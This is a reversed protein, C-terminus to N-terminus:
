GAFPGRNRPDEENSSRVEAQSTRMSEDGGNWVLAAAATRSPPDWALRFRRRLVPNPLQLRMEHGEVGEREVHEISYRGDGVVETNLDADVRGPGRGIAPGRPTVGLDSPLFVQLDLQATPYAVNRSVWEYPRPGLKSDTTAEIIDERFAYKYSPLFGALTIDALEGPVLPPHFAVDQVFNSGTTKRPPRLSISGSGTRIAEIISLQPRRVHDFPLQRDTDRTFDFSCIDLGSTDQSVMRRRAWYHGDLTDPFAESRTFSWRTDIHEYRRDFDQHIAARDGLPVWGRIRGSDRLATISMTLADILDAETQWYSCVTTAEVEKRFRALQERAEPTGDSRELPLTEPAGHLLGILPKGLAVAERFERHTWSIGAEQSISGYRGAVVFVCFDAARLSELILAWQAVGISPFYEMGLPVCQRGLLVRGLREREARLDLFTSSVFATFLREV